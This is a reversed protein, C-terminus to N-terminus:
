VFGNVRRAINRAAKALINLVLLIRMPEALDIISLPFTLGLAVMPPDSPVYQLSGINLDGFAEFMSLLDVADLRSIACTAKVIELDPPVLDRMLYVEQRKAQPGEVEFELTLIDSSLRQGGVMEALAAFDSWNTM